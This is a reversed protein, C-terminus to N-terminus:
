WEREHSGFGVVSPLGKEPMCSPSSPIQDLSLSPELPGWRFMARLSGFSQLYLFLWVLFGALGSSSPQHANCGPEIM